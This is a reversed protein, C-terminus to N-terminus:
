RGVRALLGGSKIFPKFKKWTFFFLGDPQLAQIVHPFGYNYKFTVGEASIVFGNLDKATFNADAFLPEPTPEENVPDKKIEIISAAIEKKQMEKILAVLGPINTFVAAPKAVHGTKIDVVVTKTLSSPYAASGEMFLDLCLIGDTNYNVEYDSEELWQLEGFEEKLNIGLVTIPSIAKNIKASLAPTAAKAIPYNITFSKKYDMEPKPRKYTVKKHSITVSQGFAFTSFVAICTAAILFKTRM